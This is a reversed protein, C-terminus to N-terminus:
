HTQRIAMFLVFFLLLAIGVFLIPMGISLGRFLSKDYEAEMSPIQQLYATVQDKSEAKDSCYVGVIDYFKQVKDPEAFFKIKESDTFNITIIRLGNNFTISSVEDWRYTHSKSKFGFFRSMKGTYSLGTETVELNMCYALEHVLYLQVVFVPLIFLSDMNSLKNFKIILLGIIGVVVVTVEGVMILPRNLIDKFKLSM